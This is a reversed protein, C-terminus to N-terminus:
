GVALYSALNLSEMETILKYSAQLQNQVQSLNTATQAMDVDQANSIQGQLATVVNGMQTQSATLQTQQNGLVGADSNLATIAGGLSTQVDAVVTAFGTTTAQSSSLSGLTALARMIDRTYSGTTSNGTSPVNANASAMIGVTAQQGAGVQIAPLLANVAPTPQSLTSSFPSTGAANSSAIALTSAITASAGNAALGSVSTAISTAFGSQNITDPNPVPPNASDQGAFVYQGDYQSDLLGAVQQLAAQASAATTDIESPNLGNLNNVQTYFTSAISSIQSLASQAVQMPGTAASINAQYTQQQAVIPNLALSISAGSGLGGFTTAIEGSAAQETYTTVQRQLTQSNATLAGLTGFGIGGTISPITLVGSM